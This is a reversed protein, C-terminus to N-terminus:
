GNDIRYDDGLISGTPITFEYRTKYDWPAIWPNGITVYTVHPNEGDREFIVSDSAKAQNVYNGGNYEAIFNLSRVGNIYGSGLFFRGEVSSSTALARLDYSNRSTEYGEVFMFPLFMLLGIVGAIAGTGFWTVIGFVFGEDLAGIIFGIISAVIVLGLIIWFVM